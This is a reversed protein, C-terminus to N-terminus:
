SYKNFIKKKNVHTQRAKSQLLKKKKNHIIDITQMKSPVTIITEKYQQKNLHIVQLSNKDYKSSIM